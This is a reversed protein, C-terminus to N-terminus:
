RFLWDLLGAEFGLLKRLRIRYALYNSTLWNWVSENAELTLVPMNPPLVPLNNRKLWEKLAGMINPTVQEDAEKYQRWLKCDFLDSEMELLVEEPVLQRRHLPAIHILEHTLDLAASDEYGMEEAFFPPLYINILAAVEDKLEVKQTDMSTFAPVNTIYSSQKVVPLGVIYILPNENITTQLDAIVQEAFTHATCKELENLIRRAHQKGMRPVDNNIFTIFDRWLGSHRLAAEYRKLVELFDSPSLSSV